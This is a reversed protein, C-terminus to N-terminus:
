ALCLISVSIFGMVRISTCDVWQALYELIVSRREGFGMAHLITREIRKLRQLSGLLVSERFLLFSVSEWFTQVVDVTDPAFFHSPLRNM